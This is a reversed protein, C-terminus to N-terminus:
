PKQLLGAMLNVGSHHAYAASNILLEAEDIDTAGQAQLEGNGSVTAPTAQSEKVVRRWDQWLAQPQLTVFSKVLPSRTLLQQQECLQLFSGFDIEDRNFMDSHYPKTWQPVNQV